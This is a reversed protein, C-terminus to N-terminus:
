DQHPVAVVTSAADCVFQLGYGFALAWTPWAVLGWYDDFSKGALMFFGIYVVTTLRVHVPTRGAVVGVAVLTMAVATTWQPSLLLLAQWRAKMLLSPLGGLELWSSKHALDTPLRQAFVQVLHWGYYAGYLCAGGCWVAVERWRRNMAANITCAVCYPAALERVFLALLGLPVAWRIRNRWYMWVSLGILVGAWTEGFLVAAPVMLTVMAGAQMVNSGAVWLPQHATMVFTAGLLLLGLAVLGTRGAVDPVRALSTWLLPTRWNFAERTAYQGRRLEDGVVSYYREGTKLRSLITEYTAADGARSPTPQPATPRPVMLLALFLVLSALLALAASTRSM